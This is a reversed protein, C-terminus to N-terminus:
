SFLSTKMQLGKSTTLVVLCCLIELHNFWVASPVPVIHPLFIFIACHGYQKEIFWKKHTCKFLYNSPPERILQLVSLWQHSVRFSFVAQSCATKGLPITCVLMMGFLVTFTSRLSPAPTFQHFWILLQLATEFHIGRCLIVLNGGHTYQAGDHCFISHLM